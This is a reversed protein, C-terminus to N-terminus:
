KSNRMAALWQAVEDANLEKEITIEAKLNQFMRQVPLGRSYSPTDLIIVRYQNNFVPIDAPVGEGWIWHHTGSKDGQHAYTWDYMNWLGTISEGTSQEGVGKIVAQHLPSVMVQQNLQPLAMLLMQFQFNEAIGNIQGIFGKQANLEIVLIPEQFLVQFLKSLWYGGSTYEAFQGVLSEIATKGQYFETQNASFIAIGCAYYQDIARFAKVAESMEESVEELFAEMLTARDEPEEDEDNPAELPEEYSAEFANVVVSAKQLVDKFFVTYEESIYAPPFGNEVLSGCVNAALTGGFIQDLSFATTLKQMATKVEEPADVEFITQYFDRAQEIVSDQDTVQNTLKILLEQTKTALDM